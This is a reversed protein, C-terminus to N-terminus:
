FENIFEEACDRVFLECCHVIDNSLLPLGALVQHRCPCHTPLKKGKGVHLESDTLDVYSIHVHGNKHADTYISKQFHM